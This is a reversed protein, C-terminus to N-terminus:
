GQCDNPWVPVLRIGKFADSEESYGAADGSVTVKALWIDIWHGVYASFKFDGEERELQFM